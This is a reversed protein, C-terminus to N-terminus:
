KQPSKLPPKKSGILDNVSFGLPGFYVGLTWTSLYRTSPGFWLLLRKGLFGSTSPGKPYLMQPTQIPFRLSGPQRRTPKPQKLKLKNHRKPTQLMPASLKVKQHPESTLGTITQPVYRFLQISPAKPFPKM